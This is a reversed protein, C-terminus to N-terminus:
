GRCGYERAITLFQRLQTASAEYFDRVAQAQERTLKPLSGSNESAVFRSDPQKRGRGTRPLAEPRQLKSKKTM